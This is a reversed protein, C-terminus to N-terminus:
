QFNYPYSLDEVSDDRKYYQGGFINVGQYMLSATIKWAGQDIVARYLISDALEKTIKIQQRSETHLIKIKDWSSYLADHLTGTKNYKGGMLMYALPARPVSCFDTVFTEPIICEYVQSDITIHCYLPNILEFVGEAKERVDLFTGYIVKQIKMGQM